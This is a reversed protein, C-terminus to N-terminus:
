CKDGGVGEGEQCVRSEGQPGVIWELARDLECESKLGKPCPCARVESTLM